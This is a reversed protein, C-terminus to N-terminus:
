AEKLLPRLAAEGEFLAWNTFSNLTEMFRDRTMGIRELVANLSVGMYSEPFVGDLDRVAALAADRSVRGARVDVSLQAALRGYGFKRYMLHDHIGTQANDLNEFPWQGAPPWGWEMGAGSAVRANHYSDWPIYAGLFHAEIGAAAIQQETPMTYNAMDHETIGEIGVFDAPRLGLLGGLETTWRRTMQRAEDTGPPGGYQAQPNEGWFMLPIGLACAIRFPVSWISAHEPWSIDGVMELALRNLKARVTRNPTVEITAAHRALNDINRRGIDTLMCTSATVVLPKAGLELLTVVQYTSDKGGSSPVICRGGHRDLLELLELRRADWNIAPRKEYALCASCVGDVFHTDPRTDPIVCRLCRNM